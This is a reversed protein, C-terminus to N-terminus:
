SNNKVSRRRHLGLTRVRGELATTSRNPLRQFAVIGESPYHMKLIADEDETWMISKRMIGLAQARKQCAYKSRGPLLETVEAGIEPYNAQLIQDEDHSWENIGTSLSLEIAKKICATQTRNPLLKYTEPGMEPYSERLINLEEVSWRKTATRRKVERSKYSLGKRMAMKSCSSETRDPLIEVIKPGIEPYFRELICFEEDSWPRRQNQNVLGLSKARRACAIGSRKGFFFKSVSTGMKPYYLNLLEDEEPTWHSPAKLGMLQAQRYISKLTRGPLVAKVDTGIQPYFKEMLQFEEKSWQIPKPTVINLEAAKAFCAKESRESLLMAAKTGILPYYKELIDLEWIMWPVAESQAKPQKVTTKLGMARARNICDLPTRYPLMQATKEAGLQPFNDQLIINEDTSWTRVYGFGLFRALQDCQEWSHWPLHLIKNQETFHDIFKMLESMSFSELFPKEISM